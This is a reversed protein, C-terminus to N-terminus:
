LPACVAPFRFTTAIPHPSVTRVTTDTVSLRPFTYAGATPRVVVVPSLGLDRVANAEDSNVGGVVTSDLILVSQNVVAHAAGAGALAAVLAALPFVRCFSRLSM